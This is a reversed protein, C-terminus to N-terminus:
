VHARGIEVGVARDVDVENASALQAWPRGATPDISELWEGSAPAVEEGDIWLGYEIDLTRAEPLPGQRDM